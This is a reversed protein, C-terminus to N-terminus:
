HYPPGGAEGPARAPVERRRLGVLGFLVLGVGVPLGVLLALRGRHTVAAARVSTEIRRGRATSRAARGPEAPTRVTAAGVRSACGGRRRDTGSARRTTPAAREAKAAGFPSSRPCRGAGAGAVARTAARGAFRRPRLPSECRGLVSHERAAAACACRDVRNRCRGPIARTSAARRGARGAVPAWPPPDLPDLYGHPEATVRIGLHVYPEAHEAEGSPGSRHGVGEGEAVEAGVRVGVSGLHILTISYGDVTRITVGLGAHPLSGAFAVVGRAPARVDAGSAAGIDVGRHQGGQYPDDEALFGRLVPGDVPWSWAGGPPAFTLAAAVALLM